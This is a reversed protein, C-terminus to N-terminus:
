VGSGEDTTPSERNVAQYAVDLKEGTVRLAEILQRRAELGQQERHSRWQQTGVVAAFAMSAALAISVWRIVKSRRPTPERAIRAMLRQEFGEDPDVPRLAERLQQEIDKSM